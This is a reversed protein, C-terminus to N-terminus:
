RAADLRALVHAVVDEPPRTADVVDIRHGNARLLDASRTYAARLRDAIAPDEYRDTTDRPAMRALRVDDPADLLFTVDPVDFSSSAALIAEMGVGDAGQYALTSLLYRDSVVWDGRRLAPRVVLDLHEQRDATFVLAATHPDLRIENRIHRWALRGFAGEKTPESTLHVPLDRAELAEATLGAITTTGTGDLGELVCFLSQGGTAM